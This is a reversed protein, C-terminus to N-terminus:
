ANNSIIFFTLKPPPLVWKRQMVTSETFQLLVSVASGHETNHLIKRFPIANAYESPYM